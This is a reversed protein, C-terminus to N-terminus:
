SRSPWSPRRARRAPRGAPRRRRPPAGRRGPRRRRTTSRARWRRAPRRGGPRAARPPPAREGGVGVAIADQGGRVGMQARRHGIGLLDEADAQVVAGVRVLGREVLRGDRHDERLEGVHQDARARRDLQGLAVALLDVVLALDGDHDAAARVTAALLVREVHHGAPHREVVDARAVHLGLGRLPRDALRGVGEARAARVEHEVVRHAVAAQLDLRLDVALADLVGARIAHDERDRPQDGNRVVNMVSSGPSMMTVPVGSPTPAWRSGGRKRRSPSTTSTRTLSSRRDLGTRRRPYPRARRTM